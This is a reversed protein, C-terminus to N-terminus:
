IRKRRAVCEVERLPRLAVMVARLFRYGREGLRLRAALNAAFRDYGYRRLRLREIEWGLATLLNGLNQVNWTYLHHNPEGPDFRAYRSEVEWPVHLVLRGDPKLLRALERLTAAPELVHELTQHCIVVDAIGAPLASPDDVFEIGLERVRDQLFEAPDSGIRRACPLRALNWGSGIGLEFVVDTTRVWPQFKRARLRCVWELAAPDLQRKGDHYARGAAGQYVSACEANKM